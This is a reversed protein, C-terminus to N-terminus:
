LKEILYKNILYNRRKISYFRLFSEDVNLDEPDSIENFIDKTGNKSGIDKIAVIGNRCSVEVHKRSVKEDLSFSGKHEKGIITTGGNVLERIQTPIVKNHHNLQAILYPSNIIIDTANPFCNRDSIKFVGFKQDGIGFAAVMGAKIGFVQECYTANLERRTTVESPSKKEREDINM